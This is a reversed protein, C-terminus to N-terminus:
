DHVLLLNHNLDHPVQARAPQRQPQRAAASIGGLALSRASPLRAMGLPMVSPRGMRGGSGMSGASQGSSNLASEAKSLATKVRSILSGQVNIMRPATPWLFMEAIAYAAALRIESTAVAVGAACLEQFALQARYFDLSEASVKSQVYAAFVRALVPHELVYGLTLQPLAEPGAGPGPCPLERAVCEFADALAIDAVGVLVGAGAGPGSRSAHRKVAVHLVQGRLWDTSYPEPSLDPLGDPGWHVSSSGAYPNNASFFNDTTASGTLGSGVRSMTPASAAGPAAGAPWSGSSRSSGTSQTALAPLGPGSTTVTSLFPGSIELYYDEPQGLALSASLAPEGPGTSAGPASGSSTIAARAASEDAGGAGASKATPRAAAGAGETAGGGAATTTGDVTAANYGLVRARARQISEVTQLCIM